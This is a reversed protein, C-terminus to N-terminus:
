ATLETLRNLPQQLDPFLYQYVEEYLRSYFDHQRLDPQLVKPSIQAMSQAAESVSEFWGAGWAALIGAGLASAEPADARAVPRGTVDAIIQRWLTSNAGGGVAIFRELPHGLATEVGSVHLRLEFAIGELIARYLHALTHIGRWGVVMGSAAADWYPNMVSNWYPVLMLGQAGAPLRAAEAEWVMEPSKSGQEGRPQNGAFTDTFWSITYTGGLLVTELVYRDPEGSYMTRFATDTLYQDTHTGTVVATGLNLYTENAQTVNIGLGAAQGDGLGAFLPLGEPLGTLGAAEATLSGIKSGSPLAEPMVELPLGISNILAADWTNHIMDFLGTPDACGWATVCKGTLKEALFAHVDLVRGIRQFSEPQKERLWVLKAATLNASLPKGTERHFSEKGYEQELISLVERAREDMWLFANQLPKGQEDETVFTERQVSIAMGAIRAPDIQEALQRLVQQTGEWWSEVPQEHWTPQPKLMPLPHRSSAAPKGQRDWAIAKCATTSCDLGIVLDRKTPM